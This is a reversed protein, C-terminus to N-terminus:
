QIGKLLQSISFNAMNCQDALIEHRNKNINKINNKKVSYSINQDCYKTTTHYYSDEPDNTYVYLYDNSTM